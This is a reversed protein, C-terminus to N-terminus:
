NCLKGSILFVEDFRKENNSHQLLIKFILALPADGVQGENPSSWNKHQISLVVAGNAYEFKIPTALDATLAETLKAAPAFRDQPWIGAYEYIQPDALKLVFTNQAEARLLVKSSVKIGAKGLGEQPLGGLLQGEYNYVYTKGAGFDPVVFAVTLALVIARM